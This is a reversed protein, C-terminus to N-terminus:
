QLGSQEKTEVDSGRAEYIVADQIGKWAQPSVAVQLSRQLGNKRRASEVCRLDFCVYAGRGPRSRSPDPVVVGSKARVIRLLERKGRARGCGV